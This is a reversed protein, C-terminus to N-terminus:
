SVALYVAMDRCFILSSVCKISSLPSAFVSSTNIIDEILKIALNALFSSDEWVTAVDVECIGNFTLQLPDKKSLIKFENIKLVNTKM